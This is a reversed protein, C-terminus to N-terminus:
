KPKSKVPLQINMVQPINARVEALVEDAGMAVLELALREGLGEAKELEGLYRSEVCIGSKSVTYMSHEGTTTPQTTPPESLPIEAINDEPISGASCIKTKNELKRVKSACSDAAVVTANSVAEDMAVNERTLDIETSLTKDLCTSGDNNLVVGRITLTDRTDNIKTICAVPTSCGGNLKRM